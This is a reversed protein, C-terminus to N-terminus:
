FEEHRLEGIFEVWYFSCYNTDNYNKDLQEFKFFKFFESSQIDYELIVFHNRACRADAQQTHIKIWNQGNNSALLQWLRPIEGSRVNFIIKEIKFSMKKLDFLLWQYPEDTSRWHSEESLEVLEHIPPPLSFLSHSFPTGTVEVLGATHPNNHDLQRWLYKFLETSPPTTILQRKPLGIIEDEPQRLSVSLLHISNITSKSSHRSKPVFRSGSGFVFSLSQLVSHPIEFHSFLEFFAQLNNQSLYEFCVNEFLSFSCEDWVAFYKRLFDFLSDESQLRLKSNKLIKSIAFPPIDSLSDFPLTEFTEAIKSVISDVDFQVSIFESCQLIVFITEVNSIGNSRLFEVVFNL